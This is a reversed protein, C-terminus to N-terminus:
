DDYQWWFLFNKLLIHNIELELEDQYFRIVFIFYTLRAHYM